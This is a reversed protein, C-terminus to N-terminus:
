LLGWTANVWVPAMGQGGTGFEDYGAWCRFGGGNSRFSSSDGGMMGRHHFMMGGGPGEMWYAMPMSGPHDFDITVWVSAPVSLTTSEGGTTTVPVEKSESTVPVFVAAVLGAAVGVLAITLTLWRRRVSPRKTITREVGTSM